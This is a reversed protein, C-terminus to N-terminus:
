AAINARIPVPEVKPCGLKDAVGEEIALRIIEAEWKALAARKEPLFGWRNYVAAVGGMTHGLVREIVNHEVELRAMHTSIVRRLDHCVWDELEEGAIRNMKARVRMAISGSNTRRPGSIKPSPFVWGTGEFFTRGWPGLPVVNPEGNKTREIEWATVDDCWHDKKGKMVNDFRQGSLLLLTLFQREFEDCDAIARIFIRLEKMSFVRARKTNKNLRYVNVSPDITLGTFSRGQRTFWRFLTKIDAVLHNSASPFGAANKADIIGQLDEHTVMDLPKGGIAPLIDYALRSEKGQITLPQHEGNAKITTIYHDAATTVTMLARGAAAKEVAHNERAEAVPDVGRAVRGNLVAAWDRADPITYDATTGLTAKITKGGHERSMRRQYRWSRSGDKNAEVYLGPTDDQAKEGTKMRAIIAPTIKTM